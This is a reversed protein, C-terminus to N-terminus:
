GLSSMQPIFTISLHSFQVRSVAFLESLYACLSPLSVFAWWLGFFLRHLFGFNDFNDRDGRGPLRDHKPMYLGVKVSHESTLDNLNAM